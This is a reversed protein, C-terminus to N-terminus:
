GLSSWASQEVRATKKKKRSMNWILSFNLHHFIEDKQLAAMSGSLTWRCHLSCSATPKPTQIYRIKRLCPIFTVFVNEVLEILMLKTTIIFQVCDPLLIALSRECHPLPVGNINYGGSFCWAKFSEVNIWALFIPNPLVATPRAHLNSM